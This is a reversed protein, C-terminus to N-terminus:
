DDRHEETGLDKGLPHCTQLTHRLHDEPIHTYIQTTSLDEHRLIAQLTPLDVGRHLLHTALSHRLVHASLSPLGVKAALAKLHLDLQQRSVYGQRGRAPFLFPSHPKSLFHGRVERYAKLAKMAGLTLPLLREKGGKGMVMVAAGDQVLASLPLSVLESARLGVGYLLEIMALLRKDEPTIPNNLWAYLLGMQDETFYHPIPRSVAPTKLPKTPNDPRMGETQLFMFFQRLATITRSRSRPSLPLAHLYATIEEARADVGHPVAKLFGKLDRGYALVTNPSAGREIAMMDLFRGLPTPGAPAQPDITPVM